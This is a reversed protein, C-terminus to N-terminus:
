DVAKKKKDDRREDFKNDILNEIQRIFRDFDNIEQGGFLNEIDGVRDL